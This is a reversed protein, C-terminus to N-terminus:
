DRCSDIDYLISSIIKWKPPNGLAEKLKKRLAEKASYEDKYICEISVNVVSYEGEKCQWSKGEYEGEYICIIEAEASGGYKVDTNTFSVLFLVGILALFKIKM